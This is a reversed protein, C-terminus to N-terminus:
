RTIASPPSADTSTRMCSLALDRRAAPPRVAPARVSALICPSPLFLSIDRLVLPEGTARIRPRRPDLSVSVATLLETLLLKHRCRNAEPRGSDIALEVAAAAASPTPFFPM